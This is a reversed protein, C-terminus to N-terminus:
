TTGETIRPAYLCDNCKCDLPHGLWGELTGGRQEGNAREGGQCHQCGQCDQRSCGLDRGNSGEAGALNGPDSGRGDQNSSAEPLTWTWGYVEKISRVKLRAKARNLTRESVGERRANLKVQKAAM